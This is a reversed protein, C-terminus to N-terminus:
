SLALHLTDSWLYAMERKGERMEREMERRREEGERGREGKGGRKM